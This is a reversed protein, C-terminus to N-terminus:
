QRKSPNASLASPKMQHDQSDPTQLLQSSNRNIVCGWGFCTLCASPERASLWQAIELLLESQGKKAKMPIHNYTNWEIGLLNFDWGLFILTNPFKEWSMLSIRLETYSERTTQHTYFVVIVQKNPVTLSRDMIQPYRDLKLNICVIGINNTILYRLQYKLYEISVFWPCIM